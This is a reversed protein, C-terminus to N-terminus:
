SYVCKKMSKKQANQRAIQKCSNTSNMLKQKIWFEKSDWIKYSTSLTMIQYGFLKLRNRSLVHCTHHNNNANVPLVIEQSFYDKQSVM